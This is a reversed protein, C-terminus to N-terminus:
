PRAEKLDQAELSLAAATVREAVQLTEAFATEGLAEKLQQQVHSWRRLAAGMQTQGAPTIVIHKERRDKGPRAAIWGRRSLPLLSRSLTTSDLCLIRGLQRQTLEGARHLTQLLTFQTIELDSGRFHKGYLQTLARSARRLNACACPLPPLTSATM